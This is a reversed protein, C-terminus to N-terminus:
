GISRAAQFSLKMENSIAGCRIGVCRAVADVGTQGGLTRLEDGTQLDRLRLTGGDNEIYFRSGYYVTHDAAGKVIKAVEGTAANVSFVVWDPAKANAPTEPIFFLLRKDSSFDSVSANELPLKFTSYIAGTDANLVKMMDGDQVDLYAGDSSFQYTSKESGPLEAIQRKNQLDWLKIVGSVSKFAIRRGSAAYGVSVLMEGSTAITEIRRGAEADWLEVKKDYTASVLRKGDDSFAVDLTNRLTSLEKGTHANFLKITKDPRVAALRSGDPSMHVNNEPDRDSSAMPIAAAERGILTDWVKYQDAVMGLLWRGDKSLATVRWFKNDKDIRVVNRILRGTKVDWLKIVADDGSTAVFRDDDDNSFVVSNIDDSHRTPPVIEVPLDAPAQALAATLSGLLGVLMSMFAFPRPM